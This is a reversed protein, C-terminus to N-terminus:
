PRSGPQHAAHIRQLAVISTMGCRLLYAEAYCALSARTIASRKKYVQGHCTYVVCGVIELVWLGTEAGQTIPSALAADSASHLAARLLALRASYAAVEAAAPPRGPAVGAAATDAAAALAAPSCLKSAGASCYCTSLLWSAATDHLKSSFKLLLHVRAVGQM